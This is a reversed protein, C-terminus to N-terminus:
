DPILVARGNIRGSRLREIADGAASLPFREVELSLADGRALAVVETLQRRTGWYPMCVRGGPPLPGGKALTLRGGGSGVVVFEGGARLCGAALELTAGTGAFDLVVDVGHGGAAARLARGTDASVRFGRHAGCRDALALAEERLDVAFVTAPTLARLLQIAVHGLGGVGIVAATSGEDLESACLRVAHYSTLGADTLPAAQGADLDGIAELHRASPVLVHDAMGGDRGLGVGAWSLEARADCYNERGTACQRCRGCGWPGYVVVRDGPTAGSAPGAAEVRGAIEHGLTFPPAFPLDGPRADLVHLDSQCLGAAEVRVLVQEGCPEPRDVHALRPPQGWGYLRLAKV